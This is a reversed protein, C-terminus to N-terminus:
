NASRAPASAALYSKLRLETEMLLPELPADLIALKARFETHSDLSALAAYPELSQRRIADARSLAASVISNVRSDNILEPADGVLTAVRELLRKFWVDENEPVIPVSADSRSEGVRILSDPRLVIGSKVSEAHIGRIFVVSPVSERGFVTRGVDRSFGDTAVTEPKPIVQGVVLSKGAKPTRALAVHRPIPRGDADIPSGAGARIRQVARIFQERDVTTNQSQYRLASARALLETFRNRSESFDNGSKLSEALARLASPRVPSEAEFRTLKALATTEDDDLRVSHQFAVHHDRYARWADYYLHLFADRDDPAIEYAEILLDRYEKIEGEHFRLWPRPVDVLEPPIEAFASSKGIAALCLIALGAIRSLM